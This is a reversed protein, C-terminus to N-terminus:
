VIEKQKGKDIAAEEEGVEKQKEKDVKAEEKGVKKQKEKDVEAGEKGVKKQKEKNTKKIIKNFTEFITPQVLATSLSPVKKTHSRTYYAKNLFNSPRAIPKYEENPDNPNDNDPSNAPDDFNENNSDSS